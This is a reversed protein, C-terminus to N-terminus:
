KKRGYDRWISEVYLYKNPMCLNLSTYRKKGCKECIETVRYGPLECGALGFLMGKTIQTKIYKYRHWHFLM